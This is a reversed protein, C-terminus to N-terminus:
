LESKKEIKQPLQGPQSIPSAPLSVPLSAPKVPAPSLIALLGAYLLPAKKETIVVHSEFNMKHINIRSFSKTVLVIAKQSPFHFVVHELGSDPTLKEALESPRSAKVKDFDANARFYLIKDKAPEKAIYWNVLRETSEVLSSINQSLAVKFENNMQKYIKTNHWDESQDLRDFIETLISAIEESVVVPDTEDLNAIDKEIDHMQNMMYIFAFLPITWTLGKVSQKIFVKKIKQNIFARYGLFNLKSFSGDQLNQRIVQRDLDQFLDSKAIFIDLLEGTLVFPIQIQTNRIKFLNQQSPIAPNPGTSFYTVLQNIDKDTVLDGPSELSPNEESKFEPNLLTAVHEKEIVTYRSESESKQKSLVLGSVTLNEFDEDIPNDTIEVKQLNIKYFNIEDLIFRPQEQRQDITYRFEFSSGNPLKHGLFIRGKELSLKLNANENVTSRSMLLLKTLATRFEKSRTHYSTRFTPDQVFQVTQLDVKDNWFLKTSTSKFDLILSECKNDIAMAEQFTSLMVIFLFHQPWKILFYM